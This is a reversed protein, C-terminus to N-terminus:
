GRAWWIRANYVKQSCVAGSKELRKLCQFVDSYALYRFVHGDPHEYERGVVPRLIDILENASLPSGVERLALFCGERIRQMEDGAKQAREADSM